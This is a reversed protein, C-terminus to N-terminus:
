SYFCALQVFLNACDYSRRRITHVRETRIKAEAGPERLDDMTKRREDSPHLPLRISNILVGKKRM